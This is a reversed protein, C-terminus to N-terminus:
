TVHSTKLWDAVLIEQNPRYSSVVNVITLEENEYITLETEGEGQFDFVARAYYAAM